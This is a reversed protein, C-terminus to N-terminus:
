GSEDGVGAERIARTAIRGVFLSVIVALVAGLAYVIVRARSATAAENALAGIYVFALTGPIIGILTTALYPGFRVGTLGFAYNTYTFPFVVALRVLLVIKGGERSIARDLARFKANGATMAEIRHRLITRALLFSLAAGLSAGIVVIVTGKAVGFILGAGLTLISAPVFLVICAAYVLAYVAYGTPGLGGVWARFTTLWAGIPLMRYLLAVGALGILAAGAKLLTSRKRPQM